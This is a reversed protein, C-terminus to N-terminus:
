GIALARLWSAVNQETMWRLSDGSIIVYMCVYMGQTTNHVYVM